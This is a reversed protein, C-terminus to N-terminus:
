MNDLIETIKSITNNLEKIKKDEPVANANQQIHLRRHRRMEKHSLSKYGCERCIYPDCGHQDMIHRALNTRRLAEFSCLVCKQM